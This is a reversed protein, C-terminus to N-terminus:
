PARAEHEVREVIRAADAARRMPQTGVITVDSAGASRALTAYETLTRVLEDRAAAGLYGTDHIRDGLRLMSSVDVLPELGHGNTSAVLLHVSVSGVDIAASIRAHESRAAAAAADLALRTSAASTRDM